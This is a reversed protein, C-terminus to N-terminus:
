AMPEAREVLQLPLGWPDRLMVVWDGTPTQAVDDQPAAGAKVLRLRESAIDDVAFAIHLSRPDTHPHDPAPAEPNNYVELIVRGTGDALFRAHTPAGAQRIIAMDLNKVYWDAAAVPDSVNLATHEYKM